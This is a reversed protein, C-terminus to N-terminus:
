SLSLDIKEGLRLDWDGSVQSLGSQHHFTIEGFYIASEHLYFDVRCYCFPEALKRALDLLKMLQEPRETENLKRYEVISTKFGINLNEWDVSFYGQEHNGFRDTDVQIIYDFDGSMKKFCHIKIDSPVIGEHNVLLKECIIKRPVNKYQWERTRVSYDYNLWKELKKESQFFNLKHKDFSIINTGSGHTCKLIFKLPLSAWDIDSPKEYVHLLPILYESGIKEEVYKRVAYKDSCITHLNSRSNVKLWQIKETFTKPETLSLKKKLKLFYIVRLFYEDSVLKTANYVFNIIKKM